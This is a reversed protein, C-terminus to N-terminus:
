DLAAVEAEITGFMVFGERITTVEEAKASLDAGGMDSLLEVIGNLDMRAHETMPRAGVAKMATAWGGPTVVTETNEEEGAFCMLANYRNQIPNGAAPAATAQQQQALPAYATISDTWEDTKGEKLKKVITGLCRRGIGRSPDISCGEAIAKASDALALALVIHVMGSKENFSQPIPTRSKRTAPEENGALEFLWTWELKVDGKKSYQSDQDETREEVSKLTIPYEGTPLPVFNQRPGIDYTKGM